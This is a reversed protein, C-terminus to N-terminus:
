IVTRAQSKGPKQKRQTRKRLRQRKMRRQRLRKRRMRRLLRGQQMAADQRELVMLGALLLALGRRRLNKVVDKMETGKM